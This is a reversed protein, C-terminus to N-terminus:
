NFNIIFGFRGLEAPAGGGNQGRLVLTYSGSRLRSAPILINIPAGPSPPAPAPISIVAGLTSGTRIDCVYSEREAGPPIDLSLGVFPADKSVVIVQDDGRAVPRLFFAPYARPAAVREFERRLRSIRFVEQYAIVLILAAALATLFAPRRWWELRLKRRENYYGAEALVARANAAFAAGAEVEAACEPCGFFHEEFESREAASLEDLLYRDAAQCDVAERHNM